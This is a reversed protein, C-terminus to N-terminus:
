GMPAVERRRRRFLRWNSPRAYGTRLGDIALAAILVVGLVIRQYSAPVHQSVLFDNLGSVLLVAAFTGLLTGRGGKLSTGGLVVAAIVKLEFGDEIGGDATWVRTVFVLAAIGVCFGVLAFLFMRLRAESIGCFRAAEPSSGFAIVRRGIVTRRLIVWAAGFVAIMLLFPFPIGLIDAAGISVFLSGAESYPLTKPGDQTLVYTIGRFLFLTSLTAVFPTVFLRTIIIGNVLGCGLGAVLAAVIAMPTGGVSYGMLSISSVLALQGGVSLDFTGNMIVMTMGAAVIGVYASERMISQINSVSLFSPDIVAAVIALALLVLAIGWQEWLKGLRRSRTDALKPAPEPAAPATGKTASTGNTESM